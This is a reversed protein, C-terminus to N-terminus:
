IEETKLYEKYTNFMTKLNEKPNLYFEERNFMSLWQPAKNSATIIVPKIMKQLYQTVLKPKGNSKFLGFYREHLNEKLPVQDWLKLSYDGFCWGWAGIMGAKALEKIAKQYYDKVLEESWIPCKLNAKEDSTIYPSITPISPAGFEQFLVPKDALWLTIIGLFPLVWVDFPDEVWDLYFPYGHMVVFDCYKAVDQPWIHRDEELDEAHMGLTVLDHSSKKVTNSMIELWRQGELRDTPIHCNSSENGLDYAYIAAHGKLSQGVKEIQLVQAELLDAEKYFNRIKQYSVRNQSYVPFRSKDLKTDLAWYPMWNAGSMHGCFFTPMLKLKYKLALDAVQCLYGIKNTSILNPEPQFDEWTLFIRVYNINFEALKKFDEEVEDPDFDQWWYMAKNIPWYNVGFTFENSSM